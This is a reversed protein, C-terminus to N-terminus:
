CWERGGRVLGIRMFDQLTGELPPDSGDDYVYFKGIGVSSHYAVWERIRKHDGAGCLAHAM